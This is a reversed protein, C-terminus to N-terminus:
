YCDELGEVDFNIDYLQIFNEGKQITEACYYCQAEGVLKSSYINDPENMIYKITEMGYTPIDLFTDNYNFLSKPGRPLILGGTANGM